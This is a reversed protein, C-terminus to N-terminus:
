NDKPKKDKVTYILAATVVVTSLLRGVLPGYDTVTQGDWGSQSTKTTLALVVFFAIGVWMVRLQRKSVGSAEGEFVRM